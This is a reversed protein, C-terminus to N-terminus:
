EDLDDFFQYPLSLQAETADSAPICRREPRSDYPNRYSGHKAVM